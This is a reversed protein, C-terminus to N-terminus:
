SCSCYNRAHIMHSMVHCLMVYCLMIYSVCLLGYGISILYRLMIHCSCSMIHLQGTQFMYGATDVVGTLQVTSIVLIHCSLPDYCM